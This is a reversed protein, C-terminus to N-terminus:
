PDTALPLPIARRDHATKLIQRAPPYGYQKISLAPAILGITPPIRRWGFTTIAAQIKAASQEDTGLSLLQSEGKYKEWAALLMDVTANPKIEIIWLLHDPTLALIDAVRGNTLRAEVVVQHRTNLLAAAIQTKLFFHDTKEM